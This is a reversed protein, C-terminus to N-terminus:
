FTSFKPHFNNIEFFPHVPSFFGVKIFNPSSSLIFYVLLHM